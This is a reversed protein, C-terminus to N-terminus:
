NLLPIKTKLWDLFTPPMALTTQYDHDLRDPEDTYKISDPYYEIVHDFRGGYSMSFYRTALLERQENFVQLRIEYDVNGNLMNGSYGGKGCFHVKFKQGQFEKVGGSLKENFFDCRDYGTAFVAMGVYIISSIFLLIIMHAKLNDRIEQQPNEASKITRYFKYGMFCFFIVSVTWAIETKYQPIYFLMIKLALPDPLLFFGVVLVLVVYAVFLLYNKINKRFTQM